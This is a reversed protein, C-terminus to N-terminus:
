FYQAYTAGSDAIMIKFGRYDNFLNMLVRSATFDDYDVTDPIGKPKGYSATVELMANICLIFETRTITKRPKVAM